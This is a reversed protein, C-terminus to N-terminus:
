PEDIYINARAQLAGGSEGLEIDAHQFFERQRVRMEHALKGRRPRCALGLLQQAM